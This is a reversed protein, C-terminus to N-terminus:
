YPCRGNQASPNPPHIPLTVYFTSGPCKEKDFGPSKVWVRGGHAEVIGRSIYLGLGLGGGMFSTSSSSHNLVNGLVNFRDFIYDQDAIDIGVGSDEFVIEVGEPVVRGRIRIQGGDPTYKVANSLLSWFVQYLQKVDGHIIPLTELNQLEISLHRGQGLPSLEDLATHVLHGVATPSICPDIQGMEVSAVNILDNVMKNLQNSATLISQLMEESSLSYNSEEKTMLLYAYGYVASIPTRLEHAVLSIFNSKMKDLKKLEYQADQLAQHTQELEVIKHELRQALKHNQAKLHLTQRTEPIQDRQGTMYAEIRDLLVNNDIPKSIYGDCGATLAQERSEQSANGTLAVIPTQALGPMSRLRTALEYGDLVELNLDMLILDPHEDRALRLGALGDSALTIQYGRKTLVRSVLKRCIPDDEIYLIKLAQRDVM